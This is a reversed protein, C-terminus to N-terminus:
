LDIVPSHSSMYSSYLQLAAAAAAITTVASPTVLNGHLLPRSLLPMISHPQQLLLNGLTASSLAFFYTLLIDRNCKTSLAVEAAYLPLPGPPM